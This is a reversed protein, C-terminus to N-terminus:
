LNLGIIAIDDTQKKNGKWQYFEHELRQKQEIVPLSSIEVFLKRMKSTMFKRDDQGGFQDQFGDSCIYLTLPTQMNEITTVKIVENSL